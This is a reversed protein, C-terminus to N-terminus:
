AQNRIADMWAKIPARRQTDLNRMCDQVAKADDPQPNEVAAQVYGTLETWMEEHTMGAPPPGDVDMWQIRTAGGHGHIKEVAEVGRDHFVVSTPWESRWRLVVVGDDFAVGDAVHGTGSVGTIDTTRVLKFRRM